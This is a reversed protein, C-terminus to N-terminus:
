QVNGGTYFGTYVYGWVKKPLKAATYLLDRQFSLGLSMRPVGGNLKLLHTQTIRRNCQQRRTHRGSPRDMLYIWYVLDHLQTYCALLLLCSWWGEPSALPARGFSITNQLMSFSRFYGHYGGGTSALRLIIGTGCYNGVATVYIIIISNEINWHFTVQVSFM